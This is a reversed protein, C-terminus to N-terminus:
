ARPPVSVLSFAISLTKTHHSLDSIPWVHEAYVPLVEFGLMRLGDPWEALGVTLPLKGARSKIAVEWLSLVSAWITNQSAEVAAAMPKPLDATTRQICALLIHTDLLLRM